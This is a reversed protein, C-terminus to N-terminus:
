LDGSSYTLMKMAEGLAYDYKFMMMVTPADLGLKGWAVTLKSPKKEREDKIETQGTGSKLIRDAMTDEENEGRGAALNPSAEDEKEIHSERNM